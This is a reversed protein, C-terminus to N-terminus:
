FNLLTLLRRLPLIEPAFIELPGCRTGKQSSKFNLEEGRPSSDPGLVVVISFPFGQDRGRCFVPGGHCVFDSRVPRPAWSLSDFTRRRANANPAITGGHDSAAVTV